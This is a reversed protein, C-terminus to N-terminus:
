TIKLSKKPDKRSTDGRIRMKAPQTEGNFSIKIPIYKNESYNKEISQFAELDCEIYYEKVFRPTQNTSDIPKNGCAFLLLLPITVLFLNSYNLSKFYTKM